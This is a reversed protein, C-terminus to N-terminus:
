ILELDTLKMLKATKQKHIDDGYKYHDIIHRIKNELKHTVSVRYPKVIHKIHIKINPSLYFEDHLHFNVSRPPIIVSLKNDIIILAMM